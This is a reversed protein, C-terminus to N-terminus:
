ALHSRLCANFRNARARLNDFIVGAVEMDAEAVNEFLIQFLSEDDLVCFGKNECLDLLVPSNTWYPNVLLCHIANFHLVTRSDALLNGFYIGSLKAIDSEFKAHAVEVMEELITKDSFKDLM